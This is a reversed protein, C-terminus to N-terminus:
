DDPIDNVKLVLSFSQITEGNESKVAFFSPELSIEGNRLYSLLDRELNEGSMFEEFTPEMNILGENSLYGLDESLEKSTNIFIRKANYDDKLKEILSDLNELPDNEEHTVLKKLKQAKAENLARGGVVETVYRYFSSLDTHGLMWAITNLRNNPASNFFVLAFFRRLPHPRLYHRRKIGDKGTDTGTEFFDSAMDFYNYLSKKSLHSPKGDLRGMSILLKGEGRLCGREQLNSHFNKLKFIIKAVIRPIPRKLTQRNTGTGTKRGEFVLFYQTKSNSKHYPDTDPYLCTHAKLHNLEGSRRACLGCIAIGTAGILVQYLECLGVGRRLDSFFAIDNRNISWHTCEFDAHPKDNKLSPKHHLISGTTLHNEPHSIQFLINSLIFDAHEVIFELSCRLGHGIVDLPAIQYRGDPKIPSSHMIRRASLSFIADRDIYFDKDPYSSVKRFTSLYRDVGNKTMGEIYGNRIEIAPYETAYGELGIDLELLRNPKQRHGHLTNKYLIELLKPTRFTWCKNGPRYWGKKWFIYRAKILEEDTLSLAREDLSPLDALAPFSIVQEKFDLVDIQLIEKRIYSETRSTLQYVAESVPLDAVTTLFDVYDSETILGLGFDCISFREANLIIWDITYLVRTLEAQAYLPKFFCGNFRPHVQIAIWYKFLDLLSRNKGQTLLLGNALRIHFNIEREYFGGEADPLKQHWINLAYHTEESFWYPRYIPSGITLTSFVEDRISGPDNWLDNREFLELLRAAEEAEIHKQIVEDNSMSSDNNTSQNHQKM